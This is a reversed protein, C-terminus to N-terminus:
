MMHHKLGLLILIFEVHVHGLIIQPELKGTVLNIMLGYLMRRMKGVIKAMLKNQASVINEQLGEKINRPM